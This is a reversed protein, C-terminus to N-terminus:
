FRDLQGALFARAFFEPSGETDMLMDLQRTCMCLRGMDELRALLTAQDFQGLRAVLLDGRTQVKFDLSALVSAILRVRRERRAGDAAGGAFRFHIYNKNVSHGCYTDITAFHYGAKTSFNLYRDSVIAYSAGGVGLAEGPLGAMREGVVALFGRASLPRPRDWRIRADLMGSLLARFPVSLVDEVGIGPAGASGAAPGAHPEDDRRAGADRIGGGVDIVDITLPLHVQLRRAHRTDGWNVDGWHFVVEFTKEHVYRAIDHLSQCSAPRFVPNAPDTLSLPTILRAIRRLAQVAPADAAPAPRAPASESAALLGSFVQARTADVTVPMGALLVSTAEGCGVLAPVGYERALSAMHGAPSGIDTVIAACRSLIRSYMPLAQRAVLVGRDPFADLDDERAVQVVRGAGVGPCATLGGALLPPEDSIPTDQVPTRQTAILARSQVVVIPGAREIAWEVEQPGGLCSELRRAIASLGSLDDPTLLTSAPTRPDDGTIWVHADQEGAVLASALGPVAAVVVADIDPADPRRTFMVGSCRPDLMRLCGVAMATERTGMKHEFRYLIAARGYASAIVARYADLLGERRVGLETHYQGAHSVYTDEGVASSRMAVRLDTGEALHDFAGTITGVIREPVPAGLIARQVEQCALAVASADGRTQVLDELHAAREWLGNASMFASFAATTIAFGEPVTVGARARAEGLRAIKSGVLLARDLRIDELAMVEAQEPADGSLPSMAAIEASLERLRAYLGGHANGSLLNLNKVMVFVHMEAKHIQRVLSELTFVARGALCEDIEAILQLTADNGALIERFREYMLRIRAMDATPPAQAARSVLAQWAAKLRGGTGGSDPRPTM